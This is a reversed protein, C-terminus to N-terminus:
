RAYYGQRARVTAKPLDVKVEVKRWEGDFSQNEPYYAVSYVSRLEQEVQPFVPALDAVSAAPFLRGGTAAALDELAERAKPSWKRGFREGSLLFIPYVLTEFHEAGKLLQKFKVSSPMEQGSIRNDIGDSVVILANREGSREHLGLAYALPSPTTCRHRM